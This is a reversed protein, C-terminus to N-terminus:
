ALPTTVIPISGPTTLVYKRLVSETPDGPGVDAQISYSGRNWIMYGSLGLAFGAALKADFLSARRALSAQSVSGTCADRTGVDACIGSEGVVAPKHLRQLVQMRQWLSSPAPVTVQQHDHWVDAVELSGEVITQYDTPNDGACTGPVGLDVLHHRDGSKIVSVMDDAFMRLVQAAGAGCGSGTADPENVLQWFAITPENAYHAVLSRVYDRYSRPYGDGSLKYGSRYWAITKSADSPECNTWENALIPLIYLSHRKAAGVYRDFDAYSGGNSGSQYFATRVINAKSVRQIQSFTL